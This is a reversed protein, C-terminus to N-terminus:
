FIEETILGSPPQGTWCTNAKKGRILPRNVRKLETSKFESHVEVLAKVQLWVHKEVFLVYFLIM